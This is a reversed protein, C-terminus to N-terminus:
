RRVHRRVLWRLLAGASRYLLAGLALGILTRLSWHVIQGLLEGFLETWQGPVDMLLCSLAPAAALLKTIRWNLLYGRLEDLTSQVNARHRAHVEAFEAATLLTPCIQTSTDGGLAIATRIAIKERGDASKLSDVVVIGGELLERIRRIGLM